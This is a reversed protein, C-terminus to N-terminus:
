CRTGAQKHVTFRALNKTVLFQLRCNGELLTTTIPGADHITNWCCVLARVPWGFQPFRVHSTDGLGNVVTFSDSLLMSLMQRSRMPSLMQRSLMVIRCNNYSIISIDTKIQGTYSALFEQRRPPSFCCTCCFNALYRINFCGYLQGHSWLKPSAKLFIYHAM